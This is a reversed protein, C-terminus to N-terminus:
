DCISRWRFHDSNSALSLLCWVDFFSLMTFAGAAFIAAVVALSALSVVLGEILWLGDRESLRLALMIVSLAPLTNAYRIPLLMFVAMALSAIGVPRDATKRSLIWYRPRALIDIREVWLVTRAVVRKFAQHVMSREGLARPLWVFPRGLMLQAAVFM